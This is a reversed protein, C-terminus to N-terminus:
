QDEQSLAALWFDPSEYGLFKVNSAALPLSTSPYEPLASVFKEISFHGIRM